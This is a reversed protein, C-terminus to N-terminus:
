MEYTGRGSTGNVGKISTADGVGVTCFRSRQSPATGTTEQQFWRKVVPDYVTISSMDRRNQAPVYTSFDSTDGGIVALLGNPGFPVAELGAWEVTGLPSPGNVTSSNTWSSSSSDYSVLGPTPVFGQNNSTQPDTHPSTYGGLAYFQGDSTTTAGGFNRLIGQSFPPDNATSTRTWRQSRPDYSWIMLDPPDSTLGSLEGGYANVRRRKSDFFLSQFNYHPM